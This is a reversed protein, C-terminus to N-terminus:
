QSSERSAGLLRQLGYLSGAGLLVLAGIVTLAQTGALSNGVSQGITTVITWFDAGASILLAAQVCASSLLVIARVFIRVALPLVLVVSLAAAALTLSWMGILRAIPTGRPRRWGM